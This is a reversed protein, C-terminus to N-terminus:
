SPARAALAQLDGRVRQLVPTWDGPTEQRYLRATPYWPSDSRELMWRWDPGFPLLIWVAKGLAGALHAMSTDVTVVLDLAEVLAATEAFDHLDPGFDAAERWNALAEEDAARVQPQLAIFRVGGPDIARFADLPISRNRDNGHKPNGSWVVGVRPGEGAPLRRRWAALREPDPRLYPIAAPVTELTTGFAHPLSLLPCQLDHAPVVDGPRLVRCGAALAGLLPILAPQVYLFVERARRAVLPVYRMFQISDGLGQEACLLISRGQLDEGGTWQPRTSLPQSAASSAFGKARWRAEHAKWGSALDGRLLHAVALDWQLDPDDPYWGTARSVSALADDIRLLALLACAENHLAVRHRPQTRLAEQATALAADGRGLRLLAASANALTDPRRGHARMMREFSALAREAQGLELLVNGQCELAGPSTADVELIAELLALAEAARGAGHLAQALLMSVDPNPGCDAARRALEVAENAEGSAVLLPVLEQLAEAFAPRAVLAARFCAIAQDSREQLGHARGKLFQADAALGTRAGALALAQSLLDIADSVQGQELRVYGLSVHADADCANCRVASRYCAAAEDLDGRELAANGRLRWEAAGPEPAVAPKRRFGFM